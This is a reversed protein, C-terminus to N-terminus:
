LVSLFLFCWSGFCERGRCLRAGDKVLCFFFLFDANNDGEHGLEEEGAEQEAAAAAM